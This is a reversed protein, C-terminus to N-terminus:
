EVPPVYNPDNPNLFIFQFKEPELEVFDITTDKLLEASSASLIIEIDETTITVDDEKNDDFGMGYHISNDENRTAAIRLAMGEAKGQDASLKIQAAAAPTVTIM